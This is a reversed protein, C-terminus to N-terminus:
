GKATIHEALAEREKRRARGDLVVIEGYAVGLEAATIRCKAKLLFFIPTDEESLTEFNGQGKSIILRAQRFREVFAPACDRLNVGIQGSGTDIVEAVENMGVAEADRYTVDNLIPAGKVVFTVRKGMRNLEEILVRDFVIEGANDGLYLVHDTQEVAERLAALHDIALPRTLATELEHEVDFHDQIGLDIVNGALAIRVATEFRDESRTVRDRLYPLMGMAVENYHRKAEAFPDDNQLARHAAWLVYTSAEAPTLRLDFTEALVAAAQRLVEAQYTEDADAHRAASLAQRLACVACLPYSHM